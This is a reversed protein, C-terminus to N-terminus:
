TTLSKAVLGKAAQLCELKEAENWGDLYRSAYLHSYLDSIGEEFTGDCGMESAAAELNLLFADDLSHEAEQEETLLISYPWVFQSDWIIDEQLMELFEGNDLRQKLEAPLHGAGKIEIELLVGKEKESAMGEMARKCAAYLETLGMNEKGELSCKQWTVDATEIFQLRSGGNSDLEAICCGKEGDEKRHRGQINGPYVIYPDVHLIERKHIHGLAWYDMEKELAERISFPAYPQHGSEGGECHGHLMAIHFDAGPEKQYDEIRRAAVHREPYSFGYIHVTAGDRSNFAASEVTGGFVHVHEPMDLMLWNGGLHDHNGHSIFVCIGSGGLRELQSRLKAQAKISRDEGDFLDGAILVFDVNQEIAADVVKEFARFTSERLRDFLEKPLHSLGLFPSDLHLDATHLFRIKKM